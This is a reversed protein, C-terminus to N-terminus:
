CANINKKSPIVSPNQTKICIALDDVYVAIYGYHNGDKSSIMWIDPDAKSLNSVWQTFYTLSNTTGAHEELDQVMSHRTCLLFMEQLEEFEPGGVIYLKERTLAQLYANGVDAGWLELNDLEAPFMEIRLNRLSVVGSYFTEMSEKTLHGDTM